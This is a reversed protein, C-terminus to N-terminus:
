YLPQFGSGNRGPHTDSQGDLWALYAPDREALFTRSWPHRIRALNRANSTPRGEHAWGTSSAWEEVAQNWRRRASMWAVTAAKPDAREEICPGGALEPPLVNGLYRARGAASQAVRAARRDSM